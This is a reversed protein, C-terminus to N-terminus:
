ARSGARNVVTVVIAVLVCLVACSISAFLFRFDSASSFISSASTYIIASLVTGIQGAMHAVACGATASEVTNCNTCGLLATPMAFGMSLGTVLAGVFVMVLSSAMYVIFFGVTLLLFACCFTYDHLKRETPSFLPGGLMGGVLFISMATGTMAPSGLGRDNIVFSVNSGFVTYSTIFVFIIGGYLWTKKSINLHGGTKKDGKAAPKDKPLYICGLVLPILGFLYALYTYHWNIAALMGGVFTLYIGGGNTFTNQIGMIAGRQSEDYNEAIIGNSTPMLLGFGLGLVIQWAYLQLISGHFFYGLVAIAAYCGVGVQCLVKKSVKTALLTSILCGILMAFGPFNSMTQILTAPADPFSAQISALAPQLGMGGMELASIFLIALTMMTRNKVKGTNEM